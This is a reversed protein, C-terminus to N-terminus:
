RTWGTTPFPAERPLNNWHIITRATFFKKRIHLHFTEWHLKYGNGRTREIHSRTFLSGGDEKYGDKLYQLVTILDGRLRRKELSFLSLEKLREEYSLNELEKIMKMARRQVRELRDVDKKFQPSWFQVCYELHLRVLASYLPIIVDRDRSTIGRHICGLMQNAKTAASSCQQGTNLKNDVLVGLDPGLERLREEYSLHELGKMMKTARRQVRELIDMDRKYQPAWFQVCSEMHPRVLASSLPLIVKRLRSAISQRICGLIGDARKAVLACQQSMNLRTGVLVGLDREAFSSELWAAGLMYQHMPNNKGLHLVQCKGQNFQMLNRDAWKELRDLDRQSAARDEPTDAEGGLKPDDAFKSLTCETGADLDNIFINFLVPGLRSGQPVGSTVPGWSSKTGSIVVRQAKGNLWKEVWRGTLEDLGYKLLKDILIKHSITSFAKSFDLEAKEMDQTVLNRMENLLPGVNERSKRRDGIYKNFGKMNDKVDRALNLEM